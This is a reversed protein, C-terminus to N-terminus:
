GNKLHVVRKILTESLSKAYSKEERVGTGFHVARPKVMEYFEDMAEVYLGSGPMITMHTDQVRAQLRILNATADLASGPGGATLITTIQKYQLLTELAEDQNETFDFARHFTVDLGEAATLLTELTGKDIQGEETLAGLVVGNAGLQKTIQIDECMVRIDHTDYVFSNGHPRIMVNVPISAAEAAHKILAYSPTLGSEAMGQCLEIRDAGYAAADRVDQANVGIVEVLM